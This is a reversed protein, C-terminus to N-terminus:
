EVAVGKTLNANETTKLIKATAGTCYDFSVSRDGSFSKYRITMKVTKGQTDPIDSLDFAVAGTVKVEGGGTNDDFANHRLELLYPDDADTGTVLNIAHVKRTDGWVGCFSLTMYGDEIITIWNNIIEVPATGYAKDNEETSGLSMAPKKTLLSDMWNVEVLRDFKQGSGEASYAGKDTYNLLARVQKGGFPSKSLNSPKLTTNEDLQLYFEGGENTKATVLANPYFRSWDTGNDDLCSPLCLLLAAAAIIASITKKMIKMQLFKERYMLAPIM